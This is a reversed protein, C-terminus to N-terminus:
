RAVDKIAQLRRDHRCLTADAGLVWVPRKGDDALTAHLHREREGVQATTTAATIAAYAQSAGTGTCEVKANPSNVVLCCCQALYLYLGQKYCTALIRNKCMAM